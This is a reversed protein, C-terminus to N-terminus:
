SFSRTPRRCSCLNQKKSIIRIFCLLHVLLSTLCRSADFFPGNIVSPLIPASRDHPGVKLFATNKPIASGKGLEEQRRKAARSAHIFPMLAPSPGAVTKAALTADAEHHNEDSDLELATDFQGGPRQEANEDVKQEQSADNAKEHDHRCMEVSAAADESGASM